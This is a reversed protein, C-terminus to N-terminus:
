YTSLSRILVYNPNKQMFIALKKKQLFHCKFMLVFVQTIIQSKKPFIHPPDKFCFFNNQETEKPRFVIKFCIKLDKYQVNYSCFILHPWCKKEPNSLTSKFSSRM